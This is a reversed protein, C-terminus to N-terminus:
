ELITVPTGTGSSIINIAQWPTADIGRFVAGPTEAQAVGPNIPGITLQGATPAAAAPRDFAVFLTDVDSQNLIALFNRQRAPRAVASTGSAIFGTVIM